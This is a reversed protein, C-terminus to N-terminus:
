SNPSHQKPSKAIDAELRISNTGIQQLAQQFKNGQKGATQLKSLMANIATGAKEPAKGLSIFAGALASAQVATLGFQRATGGIRNLAPVIDKAKAATNDSLHNIADGLKTIETIPIQYVNSLKAISEGAEEAGMDFATAM